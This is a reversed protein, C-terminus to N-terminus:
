NKTGNEIKQLQLYHTWTLNSPSESKRMPSASKGNQSNQLVTASKETKAIRAKYFVYDPNFSVAYFNTIGFYM